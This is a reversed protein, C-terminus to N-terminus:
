RIGRNWNLVAVTNTFATQGTKKCMICEVFYEGEDRQVKPRYGCCRVPNHYQKLYEKIM